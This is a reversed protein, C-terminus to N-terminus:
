PLLYQEIIPCLLNTYATAGKTNFHNKDLLYKANTIDNIFEKSYMIKLSDPLKQYMSIVTEKEKEKRYTVPLFFIVKTRKKAGLTVLHNIYNQYDNLKKDLPTIIESFTIFSSTNHFKNEKSTTFGITTANNKRLSDYAIIKKIDEKVLITNFLYQNLLEMRFEVQKRFSEKKPFTSIVSSIDINVADIFEIFPKPFSSLIPSLEIFVVKPSQNRIIYDAIIANCLFTAGSIGLNQVSTNKFHTTIIQPNISRQVRSSGIFYFSPTNTSKITQIANLIDLNDSTPNNKKTIFILSSIIILFGGCKLLSQKIQM